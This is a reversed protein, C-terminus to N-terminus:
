LLDGIFGRGGGDWGFSKRTRLIVMINGAYPFRLGLFTVLDLLSM